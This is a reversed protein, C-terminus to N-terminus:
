LMMFTCKETLTTGYSCLHMIYMIDNLRRMKVTFQCLLVHIIGIGVMQLM